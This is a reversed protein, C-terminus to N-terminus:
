CVFRYRKRGDNVYITGCRSQLLGFALNLKGSEFIGSVLVIKVATVVLGPLYFIMMSSKGHIEREAVLLLTLKSM